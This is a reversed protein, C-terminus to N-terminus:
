TKIKPSEENNQSVLDTNPSLLDNNQTLLDNSQTKWSRWLLECSRHCFHAEPHYMVASLNIMNQPFHRWIFSDNVTLTSERQSFGGGGGGGGGYIGGGRNVISWLVAPSTTKNQNSGTKSAQRDRTPAQFLKEEAQKLDDETLSFSFFFCKMLSYHFNNSM